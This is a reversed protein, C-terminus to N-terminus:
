ELAFVKKCFFTYKQGAKLKSDPRDKALACFLPIHHMDNKCAIFITPLVHEQFYVEDREGGGAKNVESSASSAVGDVM